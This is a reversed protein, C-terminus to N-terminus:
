FDDNLNKRFHVNGHPLRYETEGHLYGLTGHRRNVTPFQKVGRCDDALHSEIDNFREVHYFSILFHNILSTM